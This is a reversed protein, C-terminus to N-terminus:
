PTDAWGLSQEVEPLRSRLTVVLALVDDAEDGSLHHTEQFISYAEILMSAMTTWAIATRKGTQLSETQFALMDENKMIDTRFVAPDAGKLLMWAVLRNRLDVDANNLSTPYAGSGVTEAVHRTVLDQTAAGLLADLTGFHQLITSPNLDAEACIVQNGVQDFPMRRLLAITAAILRAQAQEKPVRKRRTAKPPTTAVAHKM